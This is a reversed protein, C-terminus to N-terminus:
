IGPKLRNWASAVVMSLFLSVLIWGGTWQWIGAELSALVMWWCYGCCLAAAGRYLLFFRWWVWCLLVCLWLFSWSVGGGKSFSLVVVFLGQVVSWAIGAVACKKLLREM